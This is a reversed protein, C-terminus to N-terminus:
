FLETELVICLKVSLSMPYVLNVSCREVPRDTRHHLQVVLAFVTGAM